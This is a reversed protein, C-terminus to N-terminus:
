QPTNQYKAIRVLTNQQEQRRVSVELRALQKEQLAISSNVKDIKDMRDGEDMDLFNDTLLNSLRKVQAKIVTATSLCQRSFNLAQKTTLVKSNCILNNLRNANNIIRATGQIVDNVNTAIKIGSSVWNRLTKSEEAINLLGTALNIQEKISVGMSILQTAAGADVVPMQCYGKLSAVAFATLLILQKM